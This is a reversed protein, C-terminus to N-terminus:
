QIERLCHDKHAGSSRKGSNNSLKFAERKIIEISMRSSFFLEGAFHEDITKKTFM